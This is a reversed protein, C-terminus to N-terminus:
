HPGNGPQTKFSLAQTPSSASKLPEKTAKFPALEPPLEDSPMEETEPRAKPTPTPMPAPLPTHAAPDKLFEIAHEREEPYLALSNRLIVEPSFQFPYFYDDPKAPPKPLKDLFKKFLSQDRPLPGDSKHKPPHLTLPPHFVPPPLKADQGSPLLAPSVSVGPPAASMTHQTPPPQLTPSEQFLPANGKQQQGQPTLSSILTQLPGGANKALHNQALANQSLIAARLPNLAM